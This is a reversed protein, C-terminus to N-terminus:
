VCLDELDLEVIITYMDIDVPQNMLWTFYDHM